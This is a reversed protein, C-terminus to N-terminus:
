GNTDTAQISKRQEAYNAALANLLAAVTEKATEVGHVQKFKQLDELACGHTLLLRYAEKDLTGPSIVDLGLQNLENLIERQRNSVIASGVRTPLIAHCRKKQTAREIGDLFDNVKRAACEPTDPRDNRCCGAM